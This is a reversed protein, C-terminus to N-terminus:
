CVWSRRSSTLYSPHNRIVHLTLVRLQWHSPSLPFPLWVFSLPHGCLSLLSMQASSLLHQGPVHVLSNRHRSTELSPRSFPWCLFGFYCFSSLDTKHSVASTSFDLASSTSCPATPNGLPPTCHPQPASSPVTTTGTPLEALPFVSSVWPPYPLLDHQKNGEVRTISIEKWENLDDGAGQAGRAYTCLLQM